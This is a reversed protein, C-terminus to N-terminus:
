NILKYAGCNVDNRNLSILMDDENKKNEFTNSSM